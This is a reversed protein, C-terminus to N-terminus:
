LSVFVFQSMGFTVSLVLLINFVTNVLYFGIALTTLKRMETEQLFLAYVITSLLMGTSVIIELTADWGVDFNYFYDLYDKFNPMILLFVLFFIMMKRLADLKLAQKIARFTYGLRNQLSSNQPSKHEDEKLKKFFCSAILILIALM